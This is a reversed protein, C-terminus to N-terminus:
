DIVVKKIKGNGYDAIYMNGKSDFVADQPNNLLAATGVGNTDGGSSGIVTTVVGNFLYRIRNNLLDVIYLGGKSDLKTSYIYNFQASAAAGDAYGSATTGALTTLTKNTLDLVKVQNPIGATVNNVYIKTENPDIELNGILNFKVLSTDGDVNGAGHTTLRWVLTGTSSYKAINGNNNGSVYINGSKGVKIGHPTFPVVALTSIVGAPTVKKITKGSEDALYINGSADNSVFESAGLSGTALTSVVGTNLDVKRVHGTGYEADYLNDNADITLGEIDEFKATAVPGDLYGGAGNTYSTVTYTNQYTFNGAPYSTGNIVVEVKGSGTGPAVQAQINNSTSSIITAAKGNVKVAINAKDPFESGSISIITNKPGATPSLAMVGLQTPALAVDVKKYCSSLGTCLAAIALVTLRNILKGPISHQM